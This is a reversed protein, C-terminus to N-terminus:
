HVRRRCEHAGDDRLHRALSQWRVRAVSRQKSYQRDVCLLAILRAGGTWVKRSPSEARVDQATCKTTDRDTETSPCASCSGGAREHM